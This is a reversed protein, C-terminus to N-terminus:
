SWQPSQSRGHGAGPTQELPTHQGGPALLQLPSHTSRRASSRYQPLQALGQSFPNVQQSPLHTVPETLTVVLVGLLNNVSALCTFPDEVTGILKCRGGAFDGAEVKKRCYKLLWALSDAV